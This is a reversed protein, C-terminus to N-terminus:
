DTMEAPTLEPVVVLFDYGEIMREIDPDIKGLRQFRLARLDYLTWQGPIQKALFPEMWRYWRDQTPTFAQVQFPQGYGSFARRKGGAGLICIHLSDRGDVDAAEAIYNGLDSHHLPNVGRYLHWDGFKVIVKGDKEAPSLQHMADRFNQKLLRAREVNADGAHFEKEYINHSSVLEQFIKKVEPGGDKDIAPAAEKLEADSKESLMFLATPNGSAKAEAADRQEDAKLHLLAENSASGHHAALMLDILWGASGVFNQDLGWLHFNLNHSAQACNAVLDDEQRSDLFAVSSPYARTLAVMQNWRDPATLTHMVFAAAEPSVEMAMGALGQKATLNCIATTFQPVERTLHDEGILIYPSQQIAETLVSAGSGSLVGGDVLLGYRASELQQPLSGAEVTPPNQASASGLFLLISAFAL